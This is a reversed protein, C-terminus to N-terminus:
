QFNAAWSHAASFLFNVVRKGRSTFIDGVGCATLRARKESFDGTRTSAELGADGEM